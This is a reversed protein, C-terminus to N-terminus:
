RPSRAPKEAAWLIANRLITTFAKNELLDPGHGMFIYVNHAAMRDNTWIVPHDGMKVSTAPSYSSEDVNALVHVNARPSRDYTYWEERPIVFSEPVGKMCPHSKDEVRVTGAAFMPIYDKFKIKGMFEWFWPWMPQGGFDGLLTAHHLGVWGGKGQEIYSKFAARADPKWGYPVFDLQLVVEYKALFAATIPATDSLYDVAFGNEDGCKRLWPRAAKTFALHHGGAEALALVRFKPRAVTATPSSAASAASGMGAFIWFLLLPTKVMVFRANEQPSLSGDLRWRSSGQPGGGCYGTVEPFIGAESIAQAIAHGVGPRNDGQVLLTPIDSAALGAKSAAIAPKKGSVTGLQVVAKNAEDPYRYGMVVQLDAGVEALPALVSSLAGPKDEVETRWVVIKKVTVAM